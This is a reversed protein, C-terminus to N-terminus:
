LKNEEIFNQFCVMFSLIDHSISTAPSWSDWSHDICNFIKLSNILKKEINQKKNISCKYSELKWKPPKFPYDKPYHSTVNSTICESNVDKLPITLLLFTSSIIISLSAM